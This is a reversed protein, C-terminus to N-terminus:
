ALGLKQLVAVPPAPFEPLAVNGIYGIDKWGEPTTYFAGSTLDRVRDFFLAGVMYEPKANPVYCIDDCIATRETESLDHYPKSFRKNSEANIWMVGGRIQVLLNGRSPESAIENIYDHAGVKSAAPSKEDAPIITDCLAALTTLEAKTLVMPWPVKPTPNILVPDAPTGRPGKGAAIKGGVSSGASTGSAPAGDPTTCADALLPLAASAALVKLMSRRSVGSSQQVDSAVTDTSESAREVNSVLQVLENDSTSM